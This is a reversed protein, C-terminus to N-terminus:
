STGRGSGDGLAARHWFLSMWDRAEARAQDSGWATRNHWGAIDIAVGLPIRGNSAADLV